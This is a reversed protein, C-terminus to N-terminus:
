LLVFNVLGCNLNVTSLELWKINQKEYYVDSEDFFIPSFCVFCVFFQIFFWFFIIKSLFLQQCCQCAFCTFNYRPHSWILTQIGFLSFERKFHMESGNENNELRHRFGSIQSYGLFGWGHQARIQEFSFLPFRSCSLSRLLFPRAKRM